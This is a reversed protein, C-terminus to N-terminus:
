DFRRESKERGPINIPQRLVWRSLKLVPDWTIQKGERVADSLGSILARAYTPDLEDFTTATASFDNPKRKVVAQFARALGEPSPDMWGKQPEWSRLFAIISNTDLSFLEEESKPSTPGWQPEGHVVELDAHTPKGIEAVLTEYLRRKSPDLVDKIPELKKLKWAKIRKGIIETAVPNGDWDRSIANLVEQDPGEEIWLLIRQQAEPSISSFQEQALHFYEHTFEHDSLLRKETLAQEIKERTRSPFKRLLHLWIRTFIDWNQEMLIAEVTEVQSSPRRLYREATDRIANVLLDEYTQYRRQFEVAPRWYVSGDYPRHKEVDWRALVIHRSLVSCLLSLTAIPDLAEIA